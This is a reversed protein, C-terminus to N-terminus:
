NIGKNDATLYQYASQLSATACLESRVATSFIYIEAYKGSRVRVDNDNETYVVQSAM